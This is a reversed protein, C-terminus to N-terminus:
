DFDLKRGLCGEETDMGMHGSFGRYNHLISDQLTKRSLVQEETAM